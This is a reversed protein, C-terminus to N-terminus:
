NLETVLALCVMCVIQIEPVSGVPGLHGGTQVLEARLTM